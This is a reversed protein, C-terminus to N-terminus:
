IIIEKKEIDAYNVISNFNKYWVVHCIGDALFKIKIYKM